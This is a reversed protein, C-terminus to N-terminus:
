AQISAQVNLAPRVSSRFSPRPVIGRLSRETGIRLRVFKKRVNQFCEFIDPPWAPLKRVITSRDYALPYAFVKRQEFRAPPKIAGQARHTTLEPTYGRQRLENDTNLNSPHSFIIFGNGKTSPFLMERM